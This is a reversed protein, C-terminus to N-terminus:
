RRRMRSSGLAALGLGFIMFAAPEPVDAAEFGFQTVLGYRDTTYGTGDTQFNLARSFTDGAASNFRNFMSVQGGETRLIDIILDGASPDYLFAGDFGYQDGAEVFGFDSVTDFVVDNSLNDSLDTSLNNVANAQTGIRMVFTRGDFSVSRSAFFDISSILIPASGFLDSSYAQQYRLACAFTCDGEISQGGDVYLTTAAAPTALLAVVSLVLSRFKM